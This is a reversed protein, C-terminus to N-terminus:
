GQNHLCYSSGFRRYVEVLSRLAIDRFATIETKTATLVQIRARLQYPEMVSLRCYEFWHLVFMNYKFM